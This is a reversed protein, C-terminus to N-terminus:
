KRGRKHVRSVAREVAPPNVAREVVRVAVRDTDCLHEADGSCVKRRQGVQWGGRPRVYEIEIMEM